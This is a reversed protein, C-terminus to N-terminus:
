HSPKVVTQSYCSVMLVNGILLSYMYLYLLSIDFDIGAVASMLSIYVKMMFYNM